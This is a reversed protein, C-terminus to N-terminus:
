EESYASVIWLGDFDIQQIHKVILEAWLEETVNKFYDPFVVRGKPWVKFMVPCVSVTM